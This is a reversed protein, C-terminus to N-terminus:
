RCRHTCWTTRLDAGSARGNRPLGHRPGQLDTGDGSCGNHLLDIYAAMAHHELLIRLDALERLNQVSVPAVEFGRQAESVVLGESALRNLVKRLTNISVGYEVKMSDLRLRESPSLIGLIIEGLSPMAPGGAWM